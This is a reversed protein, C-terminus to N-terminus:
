KKALENFVINRIEDVNSTVRVFGGFHNLTEYKTKIAPFGLLFLFIKSENLLLDKFFEFTLQWNTIEGDTLIILVVKEKKLKLLNVISDIPFVTGSNWSFLLADKIIRYDKTWERILVNSSFNILAIERDKSEFYKIFGFSAFVAEHLKNGNTKVDGMSGSTDLILLLDAPLKEDFSTNSFTKEWKKTTIGPLIKPSVQKTLLLDLDEIPDGVKWTAPYSNFSKSGKEVLEEIPFLDINQLEFWIIQKEKETLQKIGAADLVNCFDELSTEQAFQNIADKVKEPDQFIFQGEGYPDDKSPIIQPLSQNENIVDGNSIQQDYDLKDLQFFELFLKTYLETKKLFSKKNAIGDITFALALDKVKGKIDSEPEKLDLDKDWIVEKLLFMLKAHRACDKFADNSGKKIWDIESKLTELPYRNFNKSDIIIDAIQNAIGSALKSFVSEELPHPCSKNVDMIAKIMRFHTIIDFPCTQSHEVEHRTLVKVEEQFELFTKPLVGFNLHIQWNNGITIYYEGTIYSEEDPTLFSVLPKPLALLGFYDKEYVEHIAENALQSYRENNPELNLYNM